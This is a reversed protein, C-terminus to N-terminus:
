VWWREEIQDKPRHVHVPINRRQCRELLDMTGASEGDWVLIAAESLNALEQNRYEMALPIKRGLLIEEGYLKLNPRVVEFPVKNLKAWHQGLHEPGLGDGTYVFSIRFRSRDIAHEVMRFDSISRSGSILVKM